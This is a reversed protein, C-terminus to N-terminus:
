WIQTVIMLLTFVLVKELCGNDDMANTSPVGTIKTDKVACLTEFTEFLCKLVIHACLISLMYQIYM